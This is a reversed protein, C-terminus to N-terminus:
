YGSLALDARLNNVWRNYTNHITGEEANYRMRNSDVYEINYSNENYSIKIVAGYTREQTEKDYKYLSAIIEGPKKEDVSWRRFRLADLIADEASAMTREQNSQFTEGKVEYLSPYSKSCGGLVAGTILVTVILINKM